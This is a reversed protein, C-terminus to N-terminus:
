RASKFELRNGSPERIMMHKAPGGYSLEPSFEIVVSPVKKFREYLEDLADSNKVSIALHHLGVNNKRDFEIAKNPAKAQWLTILMTGDSIFSAPYSTDEGKLEWGLTDTFFKTSASLDKVTLGVHNFGTTLITNKALINFNVFLTTLIAFLVINKMQKGTPLMDM